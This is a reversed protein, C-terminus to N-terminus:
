RREYKKADFVYKTGRTQVGNTKLAFLGQWGHELSQKVVAVPDDTGQALFMLQRKISIDTLPKKMQIRNQGWELYISKFEESEVKGRSPFSLYSPDSLFSLLVNGFRQQFTERHGQLGKEKRHKALRKRSQTLLRVGHQKWDHVIFNEDMWESEILMKVIKPRLLKPVELFEPLGEIHRTLDGDQAFTTCYLWLNVVVGKAAIRTLGSLAVLKTVKWHNYFEQHVEFWATNTGEPPGCLAADKTTHTM